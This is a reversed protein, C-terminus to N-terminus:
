QGYILFHDHKTMLDALEYSLGRDLHPAICLFNFIIRCHLLKSLHGGLGPWRPNTGWLRHLPSNICQKSVATREFQILIEMVSTMQRTEQSTSVIPVQVTAQASHKLKVTVSKWNKTEDVIRDSFLLYSLFPLRVFRLNHLSIYLHVYM